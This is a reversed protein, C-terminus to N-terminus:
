LGFATITIIMVISAPEPIIASATSNVHGFEGQWRLLDKKDTCGDGNADGGDDVGFSNQWIVFDSGDVDGDNDFDAALPPPPESAQVVVVRFTSTHNGQDDTAIAVLAHIGQQEPIFDIEWDPGETDIGILSDGNFFQMEVISNIDDFEHPDISATITNGVKFEPAPDDCFLGPSTFELPGALFQDPADPNPRTPDICAFARYVNAVAANPVWSADAPDGVYEAYPWIGPFASATLSPSLKPTEVLWGSEIDCDLLQVPDGPETSPVIEEPYRYRMVEALWYFAMEDSQGGNRLDWNDAHGHGWHLMYAVKAGQSRYNEVGEQVPIPPIIGDRSGAMFIAPTNKTEESMEYIPANGRITAYSIVREPIHGSIIVCNMGGQSYGMLGLPVNALHPQGSVNAAAELMAELLIEPEETTYDGWYCNSGGSPRLASSDVGLVGFGLVKAANTWKPMDVIGRWDQCKGPLWFQLGRVNSADDPLWLSFPITKEEGYVSASVDFNFVEAEVNRNVIEALFLALIIILLRFLKRRLMTIKSIM